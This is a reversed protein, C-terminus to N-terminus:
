PIPKNRLEEAASPRSYIPQLAWYDDSGSDLFRAVGLKAITAVDPLRINAPAIHLESHAPLANSMLEIGNGTILASPNLGNLWIEPQYICPDSSPSPPLTQGPTLEYSTACIEGRGINVAVGIVRPGSISSHSRQWDAAQWAVADMVGVGVISCGTAYAFTKAAVLGIRLATFSGPGLAIAILDIDVATLGANTLVFQIEPVLSSSSNPLSDTAIKVCERDSQIDHPNSSSNAAPIPVM